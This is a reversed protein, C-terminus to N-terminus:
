ANGNVMLDYYQGTNLNVKVNFFCNGGDDVM